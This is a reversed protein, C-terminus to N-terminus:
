PAVKELCLDMTRAGVEGLTGAQVQVPDLTVTSKLLFASWGGTNLGALLADQFQLAQRQTLTLPLAATFSLIALAPKVPEAAPAAAAAAADVVKPCGFPEPPAPPTGAAQVQLRPLVWSIKQVEVGPAARLADALHQLGAFQDPQSALTQRWAQVSAVALGAQSLDGKARLVEQSAQQNIVAARALQEQALNRKGWSLWLLDASWLVALALATIGGYKAVASIQAARWQKRSEDPLFQLQASASKLRPLLRAYADTVGEIFQVDLAPDAGVEALAQEDDFPLWMQTAVPQDASGLWEQSILYQVTRRAEALVFAASLSGEGVSLALRSFLPTKGRVLVQRLGAPTAVLALTPRLSAPEPPAPPGQLAETRARRPLKQRVELAILASLPWLGKVRIHHATLAALWQAIRESQGMGILSVRTPPRLSGSPALVAARYPNDRLQQLLRRQLLQQRTGALWIPPLVNRIYAEDMIDSVLSCNGRAPMHAAVWAVPDVDGGAVAVPEARAGSLRYLHVSQQALVLAFDLM